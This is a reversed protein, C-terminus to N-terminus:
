KEKVSFRILNGANDEVAFDYVVDSLYNFSIEGTSASYSVNTSPVGNETFMITDKLGSLDDRVKISYVGTDSNYNQSILTPANVDINNIDVVKTALQEENDWIALTYTGNALVNQTDKGDVTIKTIRDCSSIPKLYLSTNVFNKTYDIDDITCALKEEVEEPETEEVQPKKNNVVPKTPEQVKAVPEEVDPEKIESKKEEQKPKEKEVQVVPPVVPEEIPGPQNFIFYAGVAAVATVSTAIASKIAIRQARKKSYQKALASGTTASAVAPGPNFYEIVWPIMAPSVVASLATPSLHRKEFIAKLEKRATFLRSKVTGTPIEMMEAIETESLEYIYKGVILTRSRETLEDLAEWVESNDDKKMEEGYSELLFDEMIVEYKNEKLKLEDLCQRYTMRFLWPKFKDPDKLQHVKEVVKIMTKQTVEEAIERNRLVTLAYAFIQSSYEEVFKNFAQEEGKKMGNFTEILMIDGGCGLARKAQTKHCAFHM